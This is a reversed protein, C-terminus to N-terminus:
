RPSYPIPLVSFLTAHVLHTSIGASKSLSGTDLHSWRGGVYIHGRHGSIMAPSMLGIPDILSSGVPDVALLTHRLASDSAEIISKRGSETIRTILCKLM